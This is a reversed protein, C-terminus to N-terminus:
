LKDNLFTQLKRAADENVITTMWAGWKSEKKRLYNFAIKIRTWLSFTPSLQYHIYLEAPFDKYEPSWSFRVTHDNCQCDCLIFLNGEEKSM